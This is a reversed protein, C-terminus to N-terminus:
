PTFIVRTVQYDSVYARIKFETQMEGLWYSDIPLNVASAEQIAEITGEILTRVVSAVRFDSRAFWDRLFREEKGPAVLRRDGVAFAEDQLVAIYEDAIDNDDRGSDLDINELATLFSQRRTFHGSGDKENLLIDVKRLVDGKFLSVEFPKGPM